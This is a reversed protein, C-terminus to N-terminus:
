QGALIEERKKQYEDPTVQNAMYQDLLAQLQAEKDASIPLPPAEIPKLGLDKGPYSVNAPETPPAPPPPAPQTVAATATENTVPKQAAMEQQNLQAIRQELLAQAQAHAEPSAQPIQPANPVFVMGSKGEANLEEMKKQLAEEANFGNTQPLEPVYIVPPNQTQQPQNLESIKQEVAAQAKAIADADVTNTAGQAEAQAEPAAPSMSNTAQPAVAPVDKSVYSPQSNTTPVFIMLGGKGQTSLANMKAELAARAAAQAPTDDARAVFSALLGAMCIVSFLKPIRM